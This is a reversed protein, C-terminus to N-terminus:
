QRRWAKSLESLRSLPEDYIDRFLISDALNIEPRPTQWPMEYQPYLYKKPISNETGYARGETYRDFSRSQRYKWLGDERLKKFDLVHQMEHMPTGIDAWPRLFITDEPTAGAPRTLGAVNGYPASIAMFRTSDIDSPKIGAHYLAEILWKAQSLDMFQTTPKLPNFPNRFPEDVWKLPDPPPLSPM